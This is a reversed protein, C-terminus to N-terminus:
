YYKVVVEDKIKSIRAGSIGFSLSAGQKNFVRVIKEILNYQVNEPHENIFEQKYKFCRLM